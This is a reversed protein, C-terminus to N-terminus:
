ANDIAFGVQMAVQAFWRIETEQWARTGSCQHAILLGLLKGENLIPAVLNAKVALKELQEIYCPTMGAEHINELAKVRGNEYKKVYNVEFCPDEITQGMARPYGPAVSEAIVVGQSNKEQSYVVVRDCGLNRRIEEVAAELIDKEEVSARIHQTADSFLQRWQVEKDVKQQLNERDSAFRANNSPM